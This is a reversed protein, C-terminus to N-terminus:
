EHHLGQQSPAVLSDTLPGYVSTFARRARTLLSQTADVSTNLRDAIEQVSYGLLYKWELVDGYRPSLRDLAVQILRALETRHQNAMPDDSAPACFSDVAAQIEPFDETLVVRDRHRGQQRLWDTVQNRCISCLWTYLQAEGRYTDLKQLAIALTQQAIDEAAAQDGHLRPLAFRYLRSYNEEFFRNFAEEDGALLDRVQHRDRFYLPQSRMKAMPM